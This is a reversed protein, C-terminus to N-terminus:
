EEGGDLRKKIRHVTSSPIGTEAAIERVSMGLGLYERVSSERSDELDRFTWVAREGQMDLRAEFPKADEGVIGRAKEYHIEFRAGESNRYDAPRKLSISTDLVDERGSTGRQAGGKNSHHVLLVSVGRRRLDLIWAQMPLWSDVDNDRGTRCLTAINDLVLLDCGDTVHEEVARQGEESSLSPIGPSDLSQLDPTIIKLYGDPPELESSAAIAAYREQLQHAPMEGDVFVVRRPRPASWRLFKGGSAVAYGINLAVHTKGIGRWSYVMGLGQEPIIPHLLMERPKIELALFDGITIAHLRRQRQRLAQEIPVDIVLEPKSM